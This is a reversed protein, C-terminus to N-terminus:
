TNKKLKPVFLQELEHPKSMDKVMCVTGRARKHKQYSRFISQLFYKIKIQKSIRKNRTGYNCNYVVDCWELNSAHNNQKNEDIHNVQNLNNPNSVFAIAVLRHVFLTKRNESNTLTVKYYGRTDVSKKLIKGSKVVRVEGDDSVEYKPYGEIVKWM